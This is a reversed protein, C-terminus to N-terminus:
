RPSSCYGKSSRIYEYDLLNVRGDCTVDADWDNRGVAGFNAETKFESLWTNLNCQRNEMCNAGPTTQGGTPSPSVAGPTTTAEPTITAEGAGGLFLRAGSVRYFGGDLAISDEGVATITWGGGIPMVEQAPVDGVVEFSLTAITGGTTSVGNRNLAIIRVTATNGASCDNNSVDKRINQNFATGWVYNKLSLYRCDYPMTIDVATLRSTFASNITLGVTIEDGKEADPFRYNPSFSVLPVLGEAGRRTEQQNAVLVVAVLLGIVLVFSVLIILFKNKKMNM